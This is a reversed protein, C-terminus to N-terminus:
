RFNKEFGQVRKEEIILNEKLKGSSLLILSKLVEEHKQTSMVFKNIIDITNEKQQKADKIDVLVLQFYNNGKSITQSILDVKQPRQMALYVGSNLRKDAELLDFEAKKLPDSILFGILHDRIAKMFYLPNDPLLGPYPLTYEINEIKSNGSDTAIKLPQIPIQQGFIRIPLVLSFFVVLISLIIKKIM